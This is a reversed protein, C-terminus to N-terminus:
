LSGEGALNTSNLSMVPSSGQPWVVYADGWGDREFRTDGSPLLGAGALKSLIADLTKPLPEDPLRTANWTAVADNIRRLEALSRARRQATVDVVLLVDDATSRKGDAGRSRIELRSAGVAKIDYARGWADTSLSDEAHVNGLGPLMYPGAWGSIGSGNTTLDDFRPPFRWTDHFYAQLAGDLEVLEAETEDYRAAALGRTAVPLAIGALTSMIALVVVLELLSFGAQRSAPPRHM